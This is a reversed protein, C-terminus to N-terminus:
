TISLALKGKGGLDMRNVNTVLHVRNKIKTVVIMKSHLKFTELHSKLLTISFLHADPRLTVSDM